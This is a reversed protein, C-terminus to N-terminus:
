QSAAGDVEMTQSDAKDGKGEVQMAELKEEKKDVNDEKNSDKDKTEKKDKSKDRKKVIKTGKKPSKKNDVIEQPKQEDQKVEEKLESAMNEDPRTDAAEPQAVEAKDAPPQVTVEEKQEEAPKQEEKIEEQPKVSQEEPQSEVQSQAQQPAEMPEEEPEEKTPEKMEVEGNEVAAEDAVQKEEANEMEVDQTPQSTDVGKNDAKAELVAICKQICKIAEKRAQRINEKGDTEINDLKILNRTLMEDLFMYKKDKKTGKFNEVDTMLNLVDTQISLIQTIPDNASPQPKPQPPPTQQKPPPPQQPPTQQRPSPQQKQQPKSPPEARPATHEHHVPVKVFHEEPHMQPKPSQSRQPSAGRAFATQPYVKQQVFPQPGQRFGKNFPTGFTRSFNPPHHFGHPVEDAFYQERDAHPQPPPPVYTPKTDGFNTGHDVSKNIVPEDRGEVFIPIHRVNSSQFESQPQHPEQHGSMKRTNSQNATRSDPPASMSRQNRDEAESLSPDAASKQGLDVTNRLGYNPLSTQEDEQSPGPEEETQTAITQQQPSQPQQPQPSSPQPHPHPEERSGFRRNWHSPFHERFEPPIDDFPFRDFGSFSDGFDDAADQSSPRRKRAWTAPRQRLRVAIDPHRAALESWAGTGEEEDFPFGRFSTGRLPM